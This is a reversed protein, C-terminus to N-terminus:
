LTNFITANCKFRNQLEPEFFPNDGRRLQTIKSADTDVGMVDHGMNAFAVATTLGVYSCGFVTIKM